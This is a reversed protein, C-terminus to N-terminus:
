NSTGIYLGLSNIIFQIKYKILYLGHNFCKFNRNGIHDEPYKPGIVMCSFCVTEITIVTKYRNFSLCCYICPFFIVTFIFIIFIYTQFKYAVLQMHQM